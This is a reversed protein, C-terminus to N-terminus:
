VELLIKDKWVSDDKVKNIVSLNVLKTDKFFIPVLSPLNVIEKDNFCVHVSTIKSPENKENVELINKNQDFKANKV